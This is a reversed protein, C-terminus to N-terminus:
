VQITKYKLKRAKKDRIRWLTAENGICDIILMLSNDESQRIDSNGPQAESLPHSHFTGVLEHHLTKISTKIGKYQKENIKFNGMKKSENRAEIMEIFQGNHVLFGCIERGEDRALKRAKRILRNLETIVFQIKM